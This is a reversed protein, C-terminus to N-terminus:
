PMVEAPNASLRKLEAILKAIHVGDVIRHDFTMGLRLVQRVVVQDGEVVPKAQLTCIAVVCPIRTYPAIITFGGDIGLSGVNTVMISGFPDRPLGLASLDLNLGYSLLATCDLAFRSLAGPLFRFVQKVKRFPNEEGSRLASLRSNFEDSLVEVSKSEPDSLKVGSLDEPSISAHFFLELRRRPYVRGWRIISNVQRSEPSSQIALGLMRAMIPNIWRREFQRPDAFAGRSRWREILADMTLDLEVFVSSDGTPRWSGMSVKRWASAPRAPLLDVNSRIPM